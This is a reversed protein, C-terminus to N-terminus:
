VAAASYITDIGIELVPQLVIICVEGGPAYLFSWPRGLVVAGKTEIAMGSYGLELGDFFVNVM